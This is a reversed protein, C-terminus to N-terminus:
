WPANAIRHCDVGCKSARGVQEQVNRGDRVGGAQSPRRDVIPNVEVSLHRPEHIDQRVARSVM